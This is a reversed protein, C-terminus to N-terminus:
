LGWKDMANDVAQFQAKVKDERAKQEAMRKAKIPADIKQQAVIDADSRDARWQEVYVIEPRYEREFRSDHAFAWVLFGTIAMAAVLFWYEYPERTALFYRLDRYARVPAFRRFYRMANM